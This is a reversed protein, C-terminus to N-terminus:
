PLYPTATMSFGNAADAFTVPLTVAISVTGASVNPTLTVRRARQVPPTLALGDNVWVAEAQMIERVLELLQGEATTASATAITNAM